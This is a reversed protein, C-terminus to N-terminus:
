ATDINASNYADKYFNVIERLDRNSASLVSLANQYADITMEQYSIAGELSKKQLKLTEIKNRLLSKDVELKQTQIELESSTGEIDTNISQYMDQEGALLWYLNLNPCACGIALFKKMGYNKGNIINSIQAGSSETRRGLENIGIKEHNMYQKLRSGIEQLNIKM